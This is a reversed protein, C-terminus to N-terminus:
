TNEYEGRIAKVLNNLEQINEPAAGPPRDYREVRLHETFLMSISGIPKIKDIKNM